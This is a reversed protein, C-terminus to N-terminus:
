CWTSAPNGASTSTEACCLVHGGRAFHRNTGSCLLAHRDLSEDVCRVCTRGRCWRPPDVSVVRTAAMGHVEEGAWAGHAHSGRHRGRHYLLISGVRTRVSLEIEIGYDATGPQAAAAAVLIDVPEFDDIPLPGRARAIAIAVRRQWPGSGWLIRVAARLREGRTLAARKERGDASSSMVSITIAVITKRYLVADEIFKDRDTDYYCRRRNSEEIAATVTVTGRAERVSRVMLDWLRGLDDSSGKWRAQTYTNQVPPGPSVPTWRLPGPHGRGPSASVRPLYVRKRDSGKSRAHARPRGDFGQGLNPSRPRTAM